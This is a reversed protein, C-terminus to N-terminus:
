YGQLAKSTEVEDWNISLSHRQYTRRRTRGGFNLRSNYQYDDLLAAMHKQICFIDPGCYSLFRAVSENRTVIQHAQEIM